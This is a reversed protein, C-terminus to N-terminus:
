SASSALSLATATSPSSVSRVMARSSTSVTRLLTVISQVTRSFTRACIRHVHLPDQALVTIWRVLLLPRRLRHQLLRCQERPLQRGLANRDDPITTLRGRWSLDPPYTAAPSLPRAM